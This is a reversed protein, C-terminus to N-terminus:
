VIFWMSNRGEEPRGCSKVDHRLCAEPMPRRRAPSYIPSLSLMRRQIPRIPSVPSTEGSRWGALRRRARVTMCSSMYRAARTTSDPRRKVNLNQFVSGPM